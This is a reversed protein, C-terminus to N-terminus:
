IESIKISLSFAKFIPGYSAALSSVIGSFRSVSEKLKENAVRNRVFCDDLQQSLALFIDLIDGWKMAAQEPSLNESFEVEFKNPIAKGLITEISSSIAAVLLYSAGRKDLFVSQKRQQDPLAGANTRGIQMLDLRKKNLADLISYVFVIHRATTKDNFYRLYVGDNIWIESKKDYAIVPDGHFSALAQGVTYSPLVNRRRRIADAAGGRRGGDYEAGPIRVFEQRLRTQISDTSRFDSAQVKNQSNNFRVIKEIVPLQQTKVFRIPIKLDNSPSSILSGISGTTQAGNVISMGTIEIGVGKLSRRKVQYNLTLATIGNNYVWFDGPNDQASTKIANNINSDSARSGLYDRLNASFLNVDYKKYLEYIKRGEITTVISSWSEGTVEFYHPATITIKDTVLVTREALDFLEALKGEGLEDTFVGIEILPALARLAARATHAVANLEKNVNQSEPLNHVYWVHLQQVDGTSIAARFEVARGRLAEPLSDIPTTLLWSLATNLDAAKNSPAAPRPKASMYCQMVVAFKTEPDLYLVDCKKDNDGGTLIEGAINMLDDVGFKLQPAFLGIGDRTLGSDSIYSTLADRWPAPTFAQALSSTDSKMHPEMEPVAARLRSPMNLALRQM